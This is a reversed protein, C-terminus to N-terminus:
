PRTVMDEKRRQLHSCYCDLDTDLLFSDDIKNEEQSPFQHFDQKAKRTKDVM